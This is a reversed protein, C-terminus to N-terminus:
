VFSALLLLVSWKGEEIARDVVIRDQGQVQYVQWARYIMWASGVGALAVRSSDLLALIAMFITTVFTVLSAVKRGYKVPVTRVKYLRDDVVDNIDMMMERGVFGCFLMATLRWLPAVTLVYWTGLHPKGALAASGSTLPSLAILSACVVNKLWTIPKLHKTYWFTLMLGIVVSLRAPVGPVATLCLLLTAYLYYLFQKTVKMTVQGGVLPKNRKLTDVGLKNDYYDNVVMSTASTLLLALLTVCMSPTSLALTLPEKTGKIALHTGLIHFLVVGLFNSPRTMALLPRWCSLVTVQPQTPMLNTITKINTMAEPHTTGSAVFVRHPELLAHDDQLTMSDYGDDDTTEEQLAQKDDSEENDTVSVQKEQQHRKKGALKSLSNTPPEWPRSLHASFGDITAPILTLPIWLYFAKKM